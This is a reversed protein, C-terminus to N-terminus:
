LRVVGHAGRCGTEISCEITHSSEITMHSDGVMPIGGGGDGIAEDIGGTGGDLM